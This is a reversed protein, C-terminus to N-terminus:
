VTVVYFVDQPAHPVQWLVAVTCLVFQSYAYTIICLMTMKFTHTYYKIRYARQIALCAYVHAYYHMGFFIDYTYVEFHPSALDNCIIKHLEVIYVASYQTM